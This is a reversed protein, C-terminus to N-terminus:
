NSKKFGIEQMEHWIGPTPWPVFNLSYRWAFTALPRYTTIGGLLRENKIRAIQQM